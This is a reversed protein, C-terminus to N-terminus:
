YITHQIHVYDKYEEGTNILKRIATASTIDSNPSDAHYADGLRDVPVPEIRSNLNYIATRYATELIANPMSLVDIKKNGSIDKYASIKATFYPM